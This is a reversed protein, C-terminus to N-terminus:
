LKYTRMSRYYYRNNISVKEISGCRQDKLEKFKLAKGTHSKYDAKLRKEYERLCTEAQDDVQQRRQPLDMEFAHYTVVMENDGQFKVKFGYGAHSPVIDETVQNIAANRDERQDYGTGLVEYSEPRQMDIFRERSFYSL